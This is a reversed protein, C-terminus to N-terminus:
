MLNIYIIGTNIPYSGKPIKLNKHIYVRMNIYFPYIKILIIYM